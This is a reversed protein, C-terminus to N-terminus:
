AYRIPDWFQERTKARLISRAVVAPDDGPRLVQSALPRGEADEVRVMGGCITYTGEAIEGPDGKELDPAWTQAIIRYPGEDRSNEVPRPAPTGPPPKSASSMAESVRRRAFYDEIRPAKAIRPVEAIPPVEGEDPVDRGARPVGTILVMPEDFVIERREGATRLEALKDAKYNEVKAALQGPDGHHFDSPLTRRSHRFDAWVASGFPGMRRLKDLM